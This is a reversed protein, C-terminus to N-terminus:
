TQKFYYKMAILLLVTSCTFINASIIIPDQLFFGYTAWLGTGSATFGLTVISLDKVHRTRLAKLIQPVFGTSTLIAAFLGILKYDM